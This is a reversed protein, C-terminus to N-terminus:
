GNKAQAEWEEDTMAAPALLVGSTQGLEKGDKGTHEIAALRPHVYPAAAAAADKALVLLKIGTKREEADDSKTADEAAKLFEGMVRIMVELPSDGEKTQSIVREAIERTRVTTASKKRGANPRAGGRGTAKKQNTQNSQNM